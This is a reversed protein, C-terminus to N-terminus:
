SIRRFIFLGAIIFFFMLLIGLFMKKIYQKADEVEKEKQKEEEEEDMVETELVYFESGPDETETSCFSAAYSLTYKQKLKRQRFSLGDTSRRGLLFVPLAPLFCTFSFFYVSAQLVIITIFFYIGCVLAAGGAMVIERLSLGLLISEEYSEISPDIDVRLM